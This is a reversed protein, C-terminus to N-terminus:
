KALNTLINKDGKKFVPTIIGQGWSIPYEHDNVLKNYLKSLFPLIIDFTSKFVDAPLNDLGPAKNSKLMFVADRIEMNIESDLFINNSDSNEIIYQDYVNSGVHVDGFM